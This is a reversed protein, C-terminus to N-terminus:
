KSYLIKKHYKEKIKFIYNDMYQWDPTGDELTPLKIKEKRISKSNGMNNYEYLKKLTKNIVSSLFLGNLKNLNDNYLLIISSGGGGRGLFDVEQYFSSGDVPSITICNGKDLNENNLAKRYSDVGNNFNGSSVFPIDGEEYKKVSRSNPRSIRFLDDIQFFKWKNSNIKNSNSEKLYRSVNSTSERELFYANSLTKWINLTLNKM